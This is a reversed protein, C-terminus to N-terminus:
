VVEVFTEFSVIGGNAQTAEVLLKLRNLDQLKDLQSYVDIKIARGINILWALAEKCYEEALAATKPTNKARKLLSLRSGFEPAFVFSGKDIMLSLYINNSIDGAKNFTMDAIIGNTELKFDM